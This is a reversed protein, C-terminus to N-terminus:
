EQTRYMLDNIYGRDKSFIPIEQDVILRGGPSAQAFGVRDDAMLFPLTEPTVNLRVASGRKAWTDFDNWNVDRQTILMQQVQDTNKGQLEKQKFHAQGVSNISNRTADQQRWIFYNCVEDFPLTFARSDFFAFKKKRLEAPISAALDNFVAAAISASTSVIKQVENDFWAQTTFKTWDKLLLSIEDSQTYGFVATQIEECLVKTTEVMCDHLPKYFPRPMNATYTHFAKGDLRIIVPSRNLLTSKSQGEYAKMRDGLRDKTLKSM